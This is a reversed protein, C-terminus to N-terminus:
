GAVEEATDEGQEKRLRLQLDSALRGTSAANEHAKIRLAQLKNMLERLGGKIDELSGTEAAVYFMAYDSIVTEMVQARANAVEAETRAQIMVQAVQNM